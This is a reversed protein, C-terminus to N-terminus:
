GHIACVSCLRNHHISNSPVFALKSDDKTFAVGKAMSPDTPTLTKADDSLKLDIGALQKRLNAEFSAKDPKTYFQMAQKVMDDVSKGGVTQVVITVTSDKLSWTGKASADPRAVSAQTFAKDDGFTVAVHMLGSREVPWRGSVGEQEQLRGVLAVVCAALVLLSVSKMAGTYDRGPAPGITRYVKCCSIGLKLVLTPM